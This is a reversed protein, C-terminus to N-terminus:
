KAREKIKKVLARAEDREFILTLSRQIAAYAGMRKAAMEQLRRLGQRDASGLGEARLRQKCLREAQPVSFELAAAVEDYSKFGAAFLLAALSGDDADQLPSRPPPPPEIGLRRQLDEYVALASRKRRPM